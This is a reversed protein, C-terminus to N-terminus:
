RADVVKRDFAPGEVLVDVDAQRYRPSGPGLWVVPLPGTGSTRWRSLTGESVALRASVEKSTLLRHTENKAGMVKREAGIEM